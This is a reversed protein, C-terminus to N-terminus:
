LIEMYAKIVEAAVQPVKILYGIASALIEPNDFAHGLMRNCNMCLLGRVEGTKHNHDVALKNAKKQKCIACAANQSEFIKQYEANTIGYKKILHREREGDPNKLYRKRDYGNAIRYKNYSETKCTKCRAQYGHKKSRDRWYETLMKTKGCKTCKKM